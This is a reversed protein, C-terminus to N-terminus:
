RRNDGSKSCKPCLGDLEVKQHEISFGAEEIKAMPMKVNTLCHTRHCNKCTFHPHCQKESCNHGLEFYATRDKVFAKHVIGNELFCELTRYVTVKNPSYDSLVQSIQQQTVPEKANILVKLIEVRPLTKRLGAKKLMEDTGATKPLHTM